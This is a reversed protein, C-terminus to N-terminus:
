RGNAVAGCSERITLDCDKVVHHSPAGPNKLKAVLQRVAERGMEMMPMRMTSLGMYNAAEIGDFGMVAVEEPVKVGSVRLEKMVSLAMDDNFAFVARPLPHDLRYRRFSQLAEHASYKGTIVSVNEQPLRADRIARRCGNMRLASDEAEASGEILLLSEYGLSLLHRVATYAADENASSVTAIAPDDSRKQILIIPRNYSKLNEIMEDTLTSDLIILGDVRAEDLMDYYQTRDPDMHHAITMLVHFGCTRAELEIGSMVSAYFGSTMQHFIVGVTNSKRGSLNRAAANPTYGLRHITRLIRRRTNDTVKPSGNLVRSVTAVSVGAERCVDRITVKQQTM